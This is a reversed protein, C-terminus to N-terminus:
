FARKNYAKTLLEIAKSLTERTCGVNMRMFGSGEQGFTIGKNLALKADKVFFDHLEQDSLGLERCDLWILFTGEPKHFRIKPTNKALNEALFEINALLYPLLEELWKEGHTYAAKMATIGFINNESIHLAQFQKQVTQRLKENPIIVVSSFLGAINFTKSPATLTITRNAIQENLSALPLHKHGKYILDCHIEDSIVILDNDIVIQALETLEEQTWVRGVPNHPSCFIMVKAQKAKQRLDNFDITYKGDTNILPNTIIERSNEELVASFPPYVPPQILVKDNTKTLAQVIVAIAAVLGPSSSYWSLDTQWNHRKKLWSSLEKFGTDSKAPYGLVGHAVHKTLEQQIEPAIMFDTDAIWLPLLDKSGYLLELDDWKTCRSGRREIHEDFNFITM